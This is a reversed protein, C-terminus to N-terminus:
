GVGRGKSILPTLIMTLPGVIMWVILALAVGSVPLDDKVIAVLAGTVVASWVALSMAGFIHLLAYRRTVAAAFLGLASVLWLAGWVRAPLLDVNVRHIAGNTMSDPDRLTTAAILNAFALALTGPIRRWHFHTM